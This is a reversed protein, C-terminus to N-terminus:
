LRLDAVAELMEPTTAHLYGETTKLQNHGVILMVTKPAVGKDNLVTSIFTHRLSHLSGETLGAAKRDATFARSLSWKDMWPILTESDMHATRLARLAEQAAENLPVVRSKGTKTFMGQDPDHVVHLVAKEIDRKRLQMLEGRRLGTNAMLRWIAGNLPSSNRYIAELEEATFIAKERKQFRGIKGAVTVDQMPNRNAYRVPRPSRDLKATVAEQLVTKLRALEDSVTSASVEELRKKQYGHWREEWKSPPSDMSLDAFGMLLHKLHSDIKYVSRPYAEAYRERYIPAFDGFRTAGVKADRRAGISRESERGNALALEKKAVELGKKKGISTDKKTGDALTERVVWGGNKRERLQAM